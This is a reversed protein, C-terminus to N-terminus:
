VIWEIGTHTYLSNPCYMTFIKTTATYTARCWVKKTAILNGKKPLLKNLYGVTIPYEHPLKEGTYIISKHIDKYM